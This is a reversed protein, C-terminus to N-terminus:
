LNARNAAIRLDNLERLGVQGPLSARHTLQDENQKERARSERLSLRDLRTAPVHPRGDDLKRDRADRAEQLPHRTTMRAGLM